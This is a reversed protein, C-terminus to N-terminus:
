RSIRRDKGKLEFRTGCLVRSCIRDDHLRALESPKLNSIYIAVRNNELEQYDAFRKLSIHQLDSVNTREGLEDLIALSTRDKSPREGDVELAFDFLTSRIYPRQGKVQDDVLDEVTRYSAYECWDALCLAACTKGSGAPGFLFLPWPAKGAVLLQFVEVMETPM